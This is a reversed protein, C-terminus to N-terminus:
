RRKLQSDLTRRQQGLWSAPPAASARQGAVNDRQIRSGISHWASIILQQERRAQLKTDAVQKKLTGIEQDKRTMEEKLKAFMEETGENVQKSKGAKLIADQQKIFKAM